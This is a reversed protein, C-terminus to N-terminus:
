KGPKPKEPAGGRGGLAARLRMPVNRLYYSGNESSRAPATQGATGNKLAERKQGCCM